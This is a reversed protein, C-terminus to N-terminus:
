AAIETKVRHGDSSQFVHRGSASLRSGHHEPLEFLCGAAGPQHRTKMCSDGKPEDCAISDSARAPCPRGMSELNLKSVQMGATCLHRFISGLPRAPLFISGHPCRDNTSADCPQRSGVLQLPAPLRLAPRHVSNSDRARKPLTSRGLDNVPGYESRPGRNMGRPSARRLRRQRSHARPASESALRVVSRSLREDYTFFRETGAAWVTQHEENRCAPGVAVSGATEAQRSWSNADSFPSGTAEAALPKLALVTARKDFPSKAAPVTSRSASGRSEPITASSAARSQARPATNGWM